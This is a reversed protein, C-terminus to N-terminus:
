INFQPIKSKDTNWIDIIDSRLKNIKDSGAKFIDSNKFKILSLRNSPPTLGEDDFILIDSKNDSLISNFNYEVLHKGGNFCEIYFQLSVVGVRNLEVPTIRYIDKTDILSGNVSIIM